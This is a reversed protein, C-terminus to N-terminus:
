KLHLFGFVLLGLFNSCVAVVTSLVSVSISLWGVKSAKSKRFCLLLSFLTFLAAVLGIVLLIGSPVSSFLAIQFQDQSGAAAVAHKSFDLGSKATVLLFFSAPVLMVLNVVNWKRIVASSVSM